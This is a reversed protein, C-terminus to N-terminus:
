SALQAFAMRGVSTRVLNGVEVEVTEGVMAAADAVVVMTGDDLYGVGQGAESGPKEIRVEVMDGAGVVPRLAEGLAHPNVVMIGRLEASRALNHDTTILSAGLRSALTLLKGDVEHQEPVTDELVSVGVGPVDRLADLVDLGRRGRRRKSKDAADAVAQLEDVVFSPVWYSGRILGSRALELVRGDIAASSDVLYGHEEGGPDAGRAWAAAGIGPSLLEHARASFLRAGFSALVLVVLGALPWGIVPPLMLIAPVSLVAGVLVGALVGFAGAFLQPGTAQAAARPAADLGRDVLRGLMGGLVYGVGAGVLAGWFRWPDPDPPTGNIWGPIARGISLGIATSALTVLLRVAEVIV